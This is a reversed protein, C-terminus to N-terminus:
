LFYISSSVLLVNMEMLLTAMKATAHRSVTRSRVSQMRGVSLPNVIQLEKSVSATSPATLAQGAKELSHSFLLQPFESIIYFCLDLIQNWSFLDDM